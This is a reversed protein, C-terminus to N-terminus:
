SNLIAEWAESVEESTCPRGLAAKVASIKPYGDAKFDAPNGADMMNELVTSLATIEDQVPEVPQPDDKVLRAGEEICRLALQEGYEVPVGAKLRAIAGWSTSVYLDVDSVVKM